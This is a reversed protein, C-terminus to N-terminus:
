APGLRGEPPFGYVDVLPARNPFSAREHPVNVTQVIGPPSRPLRPPVSKRIVVCTLVRTEWQALPRAPARRLRARQAQAVLRDRRGMPCWYGSLWPSRPSGTSPTRITENRGVAPNAEPPIEKLFPKRAWPTAARALGYENGERRAIRRGDECPQWLM